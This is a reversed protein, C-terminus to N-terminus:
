GKDAGSREAAQALGAFFAFLGAVEADGLNYEFLGGLLFYCSMALFGWKLPSASKMISLLLVIIFALYGALGIIGTEVLVM